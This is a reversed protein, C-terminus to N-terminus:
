QDTTKETFKWCSPFKQQLISLSIVHHLPWALEDAAIKVAYNDLQDVLTSTTNKLSSLFMRVKGVTVHRMSLNINKGLMIKKCRSLDFHENKLGKLITMVKSIFLENMIRALDKAKSYMKILNNEKVEM